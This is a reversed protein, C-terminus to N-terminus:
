PIEKESGLVSRIAEHAAKRASRGEAWMESMKEAIVLGSGTLGVRRSLTPDPLGDAGCQWAGLLAAAMLENATM